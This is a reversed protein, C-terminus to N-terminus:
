CSPAPTPACAIACRSPRLLGSCSRTFRASVRAPRCLSRRRRHDDAHLHRRPRGEQRGEVQAHQRTACGARASGQLHGPHGRRQGAEFVIAVKGGLGAKVQSTSVTYSVNLKGDAFWECLSRRVTSCRRSPSSGPSWKAPTGPGSVKTTPRPRPACRGIPTWGPFRRTGSWKRPRIFSNCPSLCTNEGRRYKAIINFCGFPDRTEGPITYLRALRLFGRGRALTSAANSPSLRVFHKRFCAASCCLWAARSTQRCRPLSRTRALGRFM